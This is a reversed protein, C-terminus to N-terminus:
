LPDLADLVLTCFYFISAIVITFTDGFNTSLWFHCFELELTWVSCAGAFWKLILIAVMAQSICHWKLRLWFGWMIALPPFYIIYLFYEYILRCSCHKQGLSDFFPLLSCNFSTVNDRGLFWYFKWCFGIDNLGCTHLKFYPTKTLLENM